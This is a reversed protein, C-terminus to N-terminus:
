ENVKKPIKIGYWIIYLAALLDGRKKTIYINILENLGSFEIKM